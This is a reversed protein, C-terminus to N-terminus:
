GQTPVTWSADGNIQSRYRLEVLVDTDFLIWGKLCEGPATESTQDFTSTPYEPKLTSSGAFSPTYRGADADVGLWVESTFTVTQMSKNCSVVQAGSVVMGYEEVIQFDVVQLSASPGEYTDGIVLTDQTDQEPTIAVPAAPTATVTVTETVAPEAEVSSAEATVTVTVTAAPPAGKFSSGCGASLAAVALAALGVYRHM